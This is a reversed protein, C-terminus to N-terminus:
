GSGSLVPMMQRGCLLSGADSDVTIDTMPVPDVEEIARILHRRSRATGSTNALAAKRSLRFPRQDFPTYTVDRATITRGFGHREIVWTRAKWGLSTVLESVAEALCPLTTSFVAQDRARNWSGDSDMLGQLLALRQAISARLYAAPVHKNGLLGAQRLQGCLSYVTRAQIRDRHSIDDGVDYGSEQILAYLEDDPKCIEGSTHKGDGLWVGLVYPDVPLAAHPLELPTSTRIRLDRQRTVRLRHRMEEAALDRRQDAQQGLWLPWRQGADAIM